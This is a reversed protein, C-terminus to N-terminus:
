PKQVLDYVAIEPRCNLRLPLKVMGLGRTIAFYAHDAVQKVGIHFHKYAGITRGFLRIQGSHTHGCLLLDGQIQHKDLFRIINPSHALLLVFADEPLDATIAENGYISNDFGYIFVDTEGVQVTRAENELVTMEGNLYDRYTPPGTILGKQWFGTQEEREYNGPVFFVGHGARFEAIEGIVRPLQGRHNALDGTVCIIDPKFRNVLRSLRGNLFRTAGHIDSVQM